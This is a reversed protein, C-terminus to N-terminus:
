GISEIIIIIIIIIIMIIIIIIIIIIEVLDLASFSTVDVVDDYLDTRSSLSPSLSPAPSPGHFIIVALPVVSNNMRVTTGVDEGKVRENAEVM